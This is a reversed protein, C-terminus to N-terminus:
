DDTGGGHRFYERGGGDDPRLGVTVMCRGHGMAIAEDISVRAYGLNESAIRGFVNSTMMCLAPRNEVHEQFPCQRNGLVLREDSQEVVYFDGGIHKKLDVLVDAVEERELTDKGYAERYSANIQDGLRAGVISIFGRAQQLGIADQLTGTLERLM